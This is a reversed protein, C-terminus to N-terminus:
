QREPQLHEPVQSAFADKKDALDLQGSGTVALKTGDFRPDVYRSFWEEMERRMSGIRDDLGRYNLLNLQEYPDEALHYLEHAGGPYRWVLKWEKSRIMRTAGYEDLVFVNEREALEKGQLLPSFSRGPLGQNPHDIGLYELLTPFWDYQSLLNDNVRNEPVFGPRSILCPIKVSTDFMNVPRSGNGKGYMGHHGMNMGNDSMFAILTNNRLGNKDLWDLVRGVNRDMETIATFYGALNERHEVAGRRRIFYGQPLPEEHSPVSAFPCNDHYGDWVEAPHHERGWPFHPATFHLHLCFPDDNDLQGDLFKLANDTFLDSSYSGDFTEERGDKGVMPPHFYDCAGIPMVNWDQFGVQPKLAYGLHWKGSLATKYGANQLTELYTPQGELFRHEEGLASRWLFDHVGHQSPIRGTIISARAPSCVPSACFYNEFRMGEASLRDLNPSRIEENGACGMAWAGQDDTLIFIVNPKEENRSAM